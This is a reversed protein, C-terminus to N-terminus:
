SFCPFAGHADRFAVFGIHAIYFDVVWRHVRNPL